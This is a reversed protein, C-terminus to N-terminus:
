ELSHGVIACFPGLFAMGFERLKIVQDPLWARYGKIKIQGLGKEAAKTPRKRQSDGYGSEKDKKTLKIRKYEQIIAEDDSLLRLDLRGVGSCQEVKIVWTPSAFQSVSSFFGSIWAQYMNEMCGLFQTPM